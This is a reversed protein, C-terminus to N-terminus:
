TLPVRCLRRRARHRGRPASARHSCRVEGSCEAGRYISSGGGVFFLRLNADVDAAGFCLPQPLPPLRSWTGGIRGDPRRHVGIGGDAGRCDGDFQAREVTSIAGDAGDWGGFLTISSGDCAVAPADRQVTLPEETFWNGSRVDFSECLSMADASGDCGGLLCIRQNVLASRARLCMERPSDGERARLRWAETLSARLWVGDDQGAATYIARCTRMASAISASDPLLRLLHCMVADPLRLLDIKAAADTGDVAAAADTGDVAVM